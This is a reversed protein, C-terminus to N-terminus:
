ITVSNVTMVIKEEVQGIIILRSLGYDRPEDGSSIRLKAKNRIIKAWNYFSIHVEMFYYKSIQRFDTTM